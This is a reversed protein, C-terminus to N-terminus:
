KSVGPLDEIGRTPTTPISGVVGTKDPCHEVVSSCAWHIVLWMGASSLNLAIEFDAKGGKEQHVFGTRRPPIPGGAKQTDHLREVM